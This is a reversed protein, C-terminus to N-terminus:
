MASLHLSDNWVYGCRFRTSRIGELHGLDGGLALVTFEIGKAMALQIQCELPCFCVGEPTVVYFSMEDSTERHKADLKWLLAM